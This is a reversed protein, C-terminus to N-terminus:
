SRSMQGRRQRRQSAQSSPQVSNAGDHLDSFRRRRVQLRDAVDVHIGAGHQYMSIEDRPGLDTRRTACRVAEPYDEPRM